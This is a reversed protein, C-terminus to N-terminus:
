HLAFPATRPWNDINSVSTVSADRLGTKGADVFYNKFIPFIPVTNPSSDDKPIKNDM